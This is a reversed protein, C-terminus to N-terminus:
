GRRAGRAAGRGPEAGGGLTGPDWGGRDQEKADDEKEQEKLWTKADVWGNDGVLVRATRSWGVVNRLATLGYIHRDWLYYLRADTKSADASRDVRSTRGRVQYFFPRNTHIPTTAFSRSVGPLDVGTGAAAYTGVGIKIKGSAMGQRTREFDDEDGASGAGVLLGVRPESRAIDARLRRCHDVRHSFILVSEGARAERVAHRAALESRGPDASMEDMLRKSNRPDAREFGALAEYWEARFETPLVYLAVDHVIGRDELEKRSVEAIVDGLVDYTLFEKRDKRREDDSFGFRYRAPTRDVVELLTRSAVRQTEDCIVCGYPALEADSVKYLTQQMGVVIPEHGAPRRKGQIVGVDRRVIRLEQLLRRMWQDLLAATWVIVLTRVALRSALLIAASTKGSGAPSRVIGQEKTVGAEVIKQQFDWPTQSGSSELTVGEGAQRADVVRYEVGHERFVERLRGMGGRPVSLEGAEMRWTAVAAPPLKLWPMSRRMAQAKQFDPNAYTFRETVADRVDQTVGSLPMRVRSDVTVTFTHKAMVQMM